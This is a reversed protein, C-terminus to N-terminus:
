EELSLPLYITFTTGEYANSKVTLNGRHRIIIQKAIALGLGTGKINKDKHEQMRYFRETLRALNDDSIKPGKNTISIAAAEGSQIKQNQAPPIQNVRSIKIIIDSNPTGYKIANDTLNQVVQKIQNYDATIEPINDDIFVQLSTKNNDAKLSLAESVDDIIKHLNTKGEPLTDQMLEIKSLSLLNEILSSMFETQEKMINLFKEQAEKDNKATTQLTEIFGSIIALPTRLEHSANAVFDSQMKEIKMAKTLDYISIVAVANDQSIYPLKKIHAYLKQEIPKTLYFILSESDSEQRLIRNVAEIFNNSFIVEDLSKNSIKKGFMVRTALNAGCIKGVNDIMILPDPLSDLVATDSLTQAQLVDNKESWFKQMANVANIIERSDNEELVLEKDSSVDSGKSLATIYQRLQQLEYTIPFLFIINFIVCTAYSIVALSASLMNAAVMFIFIFAIPLSLLLVRDVFRMNKEIFVSKKASNTM